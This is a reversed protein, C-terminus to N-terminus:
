LAIIIGSVNKVASRRKSIALDTLPYIKSYNTPFYSFHGQWSPVNLFSKNNRRKFNMYVELYLYLGRM